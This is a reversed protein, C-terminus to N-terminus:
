NEEIVGKNLSKRIHEHSVIIVKSSEILSFRCTAQPLWNYDKNTKQLYVKSNPTASFCHIILDQRAYDSTNSTFYIERATGDTGYNNYFFCFTVSYTATTHEQWSLFGLGGSNPAKGETFLCNSYSVTGSPTFQVVTGAWSEGPENSSGRIFINSDVNIEPSFEICIHGYYIGASNSIYTCRRHRHHPNRGVEFSDLAGSVGSSSCSFYFSEEQNCKGDSRFSVAGGRDSCSCQIFSCRQLTLDGGACEIAGGDGSGDMHTCQKFDTDTFLFAGNGSLTPGKTQYTCRGSILKDPPCSPDNNPHHYHLSSHRRICETFSSNYSFFSLIIILPDIIEPSYTPYHFLFFTLFLPKFFHFIM